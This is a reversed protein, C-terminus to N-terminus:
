FGKELPKWLTLVRILKNLECIDRSSLSLKIFSIYIHTFLKSIRAYIGRYSHIIQFLARINCWYENIEM